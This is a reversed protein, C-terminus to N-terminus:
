IRAALQRVPEMVSVTLWSKLDSSQPRTKSNKGFDILRTKARSGGGDEGRRVKREKRGQLKDGQEM